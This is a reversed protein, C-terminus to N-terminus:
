DVLPHHHPYGPYGHKKNNMVIALQLITPCKSVIPFLDTGFADGFQPKVM